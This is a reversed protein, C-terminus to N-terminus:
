EQTKLKELGRRYKSAGSVTLGDIKKELDDTLHKLAARHSKESKLEIELQFDRTAKGDKKYLIDDMAMEMRIDGACLLVPERDNEIVLSETLSDVGGSLPLHLCIFDQHDALVPREINKQFELRETQDFDTEGPVPKKMTLEYKGSKKRIRITCGQQDLFGDKTDFYTDIQKQKPQMECTYGLRQEATKLYEKVRDFIRANSVQYKKEIEIPDEPKFEEPSGDKLQNTGNM